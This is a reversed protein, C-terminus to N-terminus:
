VQFERSADSFWARLHGAFSADAVIDFARNEDQPIILTAVDAFLSQACRGLGFARPHLDLSCGMAVIAKAQPGQVRWLRRGASLDVLHHVRGSCAEAIMSAIQEAPAFIAWEAPGLWAVMPTEGAVTNPESPWPSALARALAEFLAADPARVRLICIALPTETIALGSANLAWLPRFERM